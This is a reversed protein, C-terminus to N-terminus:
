FNQFELSELDAGIKEGVKTTTSNKAIKCNKVKFFNFILDPFWWAERHCFSAASKGENCLDCFGYGILLTLRKLGPFAPFCWTFLTSYLIFPVL